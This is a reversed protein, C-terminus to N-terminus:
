PSSWPGGTAPAAPRRSSTPPAAPTASSSRPTTRASPRPVSSRRTVRRGCGRSCVRASPRTTSTPPWCGRAGIGWCDVARAGHVADAAAGLATLDLTRATAHLAESELATLTAVVGALDPADEPSETLLAAPAPAPGAAALALRLQPYGAFGLSRATRM